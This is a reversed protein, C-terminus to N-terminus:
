NSTRTRKFSLGHFSCEFSCELKVHKSECDFFRSYPIRQSNRKYINTQIRFVDRKKVSHDTALDFLKVHFEVLQLMQQYTCFDKLVVVIRLCNRVNSFHLFVILYRLFDKVLQDLIHSTLVFTRCVIQVLQQFMHNSQRFLNESRNINLHCMLYTTLIEM